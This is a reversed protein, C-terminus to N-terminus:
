DFNAIKLACFLRVKENGVLMGARDILLMALSLQREKLDISENILNCEYDERLSAL